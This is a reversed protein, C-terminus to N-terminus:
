KCSKHMRVYPMIRIDSGEDEPNEVTDPAFPRFDRIEFINCGELLLTRPLRQTWHTNSDVVEVSPVSKGDIKRIKCFAMSTFIISDPKPLDLRGIICGEDFWTYFGINSEPFLVYEGYTSWQPDTRYAIGRGLELERCKCATVVAAIVILIIIKRM